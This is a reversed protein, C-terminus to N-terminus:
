GVAFRWGNANRGSGVRVADAKVVWPIRSLTRTLYTRNVPSGGNVGTLSDTIDAVDLTTFEQGLLTVTLVRDSWLKDHIVQAAQRVISDHDFPLGTADLLPVAAVTVTDPLTFDPSIIAYRTISLTPGRPDRDPNDFVGVDGITLVAGATIGVKDRLARYVAEDLRENSDLLVGPLANQGLAPEFARRGLIVEVQRTDRNFRVPVVDISILPQPM